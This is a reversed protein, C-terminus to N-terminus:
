QDALHVSIVKNGWGEVVKNEDVDKRFQDSAEITGIKTYEGEINADQYFLIIRNPDSYYIEGAKEETVKQPDSPIKFRNPVDYYQMVKWGEFDNFHYIPLNLGSAGINRILTAATDNDESHMDYVASSQGFQVKVDTTKGTATGSVTQATASMPVSSMTGTKTETSTRRVASNGCGLLLLLFTLILAASIIKNKMFQEENPIM